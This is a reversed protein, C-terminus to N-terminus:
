DENEDSSRNDSYEEDRGRKGVDVELDDEEITPM